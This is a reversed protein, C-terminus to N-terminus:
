YNDNSHIRQLESFEINDSIGKRVSTINQNLCKYANTTELESLGIELCENKNLGIDINNLDAEKTGFMVFLWGKSKCQTIITKLYNQSYKSSNDQGDTMCCIIVEDNLKYNTDIKNIMEIYADYYATMGAPKISYFTERVNNQEKLNVGDYIMNLKDSFTMGYFLSKNEIEVKQKELFEEICKEIIINYSNYMSGSTDVLLGIHTTKPIVLYWSKYHKNFEINIELENTSEPKCKRFVSRLGNETKQIFYNSNKFFITIDHYDELKVSNHIPNTLYDIYKDEIFNSKDSPYINIEGTRPDISGWIFNEYESITDCKYNQTKTTM